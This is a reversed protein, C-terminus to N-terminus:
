VTTGSHVGQGGSPATTAAILTPLPSMLTLLRVGNRLPRLMQADSSAYQLPTEHSEALRLTSYDLNLPLDEVPTEGGGGGCSGMLLLAGVGLMRSISSM